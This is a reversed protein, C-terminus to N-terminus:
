LGIAVPRLIASVDLDPRVWRRAIEDRATVAWASTIGVPANAHAGLSSCRQLPGLM